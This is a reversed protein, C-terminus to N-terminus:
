RGIRSNKKKKKCPKSNKNHPHHSPFAIPFYLVTSLGKWIFTLTLPLFHSLPVPAVVSMIMWQFSVSFFFLHFLLLVFPASPVGAGCPTHSVTFNASIAPSSWFVTLPTPFQPFCFRFGSFTLFFSPLIGWSKSVALLLLRLFVCCAYFM